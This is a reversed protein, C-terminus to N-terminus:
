SDETTKSLLLYISDNAQKREIIKFGTREAVKVYYDLDYAKKPWYSGYGTSIKKDPLVVEVPVVFGPKDIGKRHTLQVDWIKLAGGKKLVRFVESFVREHDHATMYMLSYFVTALNFSSDLFKLRTADMVLKLPGEAAELLEDKKTDIAVVQKGKLQGIVGEGGGGIDLILGDAFFDDIVVTQTQFYYLDQKIAKDCEDNNPARLAINTLSIIEENNPM